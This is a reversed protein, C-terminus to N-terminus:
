YAGSQPCDVGPFREAHWDGKDHTYHKRSMFDLHGIKKNKLLIGMDGDVINTSGIFSINKLSSCQILPSLSDINACDDLSLSTLAQLNALPAVSTIRKCKKVSLKELKHCSTLEDLQEL